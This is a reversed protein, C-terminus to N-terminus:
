RIIEKCCIVEVCWDNEHLIRLAERRNHAMIRVEKINNHRQYYKIYYEKM